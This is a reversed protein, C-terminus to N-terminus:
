PTKNLGKLYLFLPIGMKATVTIAAFGVLIMGIM